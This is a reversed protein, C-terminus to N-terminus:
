TYLPGIHGVFTDVIKTLERDVGAQESEAQKKGDETGELFGKKYAEREAAKLDEESFTPPPPPSPPAEERLRGTPLFIKSGVVKATAAEDFERFSFRQVSMKDM